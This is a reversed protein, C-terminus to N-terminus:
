LMDGKKTQKKIRVNRNRVKIRKFGWVLPRSLLRLTVIFIGYIFVFIRDALKLLTADSAYKFLLFFAIAFILLYIRIAGDLAYYSLLIFGLTFATVKFFVSVEGVLGSRKEERSNMESKPLEFISKYKLLHEHIKKICRAEVSLIKLIADLVAFIAGFVAASFLSAITEFTTFYTM